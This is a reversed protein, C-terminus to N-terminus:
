GEMAMPIKLILDIDKCLFNELYTLMGIRLLLILLALFQPMVMNLPFLLLSIPIRKIQFLILGCNLIGEMRLEGFM